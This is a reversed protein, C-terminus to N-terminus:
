QNRKKVYNQVFLLFNKTLEKVKSYNSKELKIDILM